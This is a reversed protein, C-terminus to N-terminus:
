VRWAIGAAEVDLASKRCVAPSPYLNRARSLMLAQAASPGAISELAAVCSQDIIGDLNFRVLTGTLSEAIMLSSGDSMLSHPHRLGSVVTEGTDVAVVSGLRMSKKTQMGFMSVFLRGQYSCIGNIHLTDSEGQAFARVIEEETSALDYRVVSDNGTSVIYLQGDVYVMSHVDYTLRLDVVKRYNLHDDLFLLKSLGNSQLGAVFGGPIKALGSIGRFYVSNPVGSLDVFSLKSSEPCLVALAFLPNANFCSSVLIQDM